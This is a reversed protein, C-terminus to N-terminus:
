PIDQDQSVTLSASVTASQGTLSTAVLYLTHSGTPWGMAAGGANGPGTWVTPNVWFSFGSDSPYGQPTPQGGQDDLAALGLDVSNPDGSLGDLYAHVSQIGDHSAQVQAPAYAYGIVKYGAHGNSITAGQLAEPQPSNGWIWAGTMVLGNQVTQAQVVASANMTVILPLWWWGRGPTHLYVYFQQPGATNTLAPKAPVTVQFGSQAANPLSMVQAVDSRTLGVTGHALVTGGSQKPGNMVEVRDVGSWGQASTDLAWGTVGIGAGPYFPTGAQPSDIHGIVQSGDGAAGPGVNLSSPGNPAQQGLATSAGLVTVLAVALLAVGGRAAWSSRRGRGNM